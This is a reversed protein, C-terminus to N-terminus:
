SPQSFAAIGLLHDTSTTEKCWLVEFFVIRSTTVRSRVREDRADRANVHVPFLSYERGDSPARGFMGSSRPCRLQFHDSSKEIMFGRMAKWRTMIECELAEPM